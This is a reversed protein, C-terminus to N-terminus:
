EAGGGAEGELRAAEQGGGIPEAEVEAEGDEAEEGAEIGIEEPEAAEATAM